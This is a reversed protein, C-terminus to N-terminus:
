DHKTMKDVQVATEKDFQQKKSIHPMEKRENHTDLQKKLFVQRTRFTKNIQLSHRTNSVCIWNDM